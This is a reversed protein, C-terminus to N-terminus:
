CSTPQSIFRLGTTLHIVFLTYQDSISRCSQAKYLALPPHADRTTGRTLRSLFPFVILLVCECGHSTTCRIWDLPLSCGM